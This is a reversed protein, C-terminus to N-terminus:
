LMNQINKGKQQLFKSQIREKKGKSRCLYLFIYMNTFFPVIKKVNKFKSM